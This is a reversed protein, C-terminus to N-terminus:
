KITSRRINLTTSLEINKKSFAEDKSKLESILIQAANVALEEIPQAVATISPNNFKFFELDDFCLLAIDEPIRVKMEHLSELCAIAIHGNVAFIADIKNPGSLMNKLEKRVSNKIDDFPIEAMLRKGYTLGHDRLAKYYGEIRHNISSVHVPTVAFASIQRYGQLILHSVAEYAGKYNNVAVTNALINPMARDILVFPYKEELMAKFESDSKQSTSIILGDTQRDKLMRILKLEKEIDEDTSCIILSYGKEELFDEVHRAIKSYFPNSIDSVILGITNSRGMRLGRAMMNPKYDLEKIKEWVRQQTTKSIGNEQAKNNLVMSVLSKSVGLSEAIDQLSIKKKM